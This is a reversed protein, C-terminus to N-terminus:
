DTWHDRLRESLTMLISATAGWIVHEPHRWVWYEHWAGQFMAGHREAARPDLLDSVPLTLIADVEDPSPFWSAAGDVLAVVPTVHFGTTTLHPPLRGVVTCHGRDLAIEEEAERLAADEPTPDAADIRGGPFSVQGPHHRLKESRRTLLIFPDAALVIPVLVGARLRPPPLGRRNEAESQKADDRLIMGLHEALWQPGIKEITEM